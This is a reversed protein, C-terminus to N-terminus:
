PTKLKRESTSIVLMGNFFQLNTAVFNSPLGKGSLQWATDAATKTYVGDWQAAYLTNGLNLVNFTYLNQPLGAQASQWTIDDKTTLLLKEYTMAYLQANDASINHVSVNPLINTWQNYEMQKYVGKNTALYINGRYMTAGNAQLGSAGFLLQWNGSVDNLLYFGDNTCVYLSYGFQIYRRITLNALGNNKALWTKGNDASFFVGSDKTGVYINNQFFILPGINADIIKKDTPINTWGKENFLYLGTEKTAVALKNEHVAMGGLGIRVQQPLGASANKWNKGNDFSFYVIGTDSDNKLTVLPQKREVKNNTQGVCASLAFVLFMLFFKSQM